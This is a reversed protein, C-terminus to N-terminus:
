PRTSDLGTGRASDPGPGPAAGPASPTLPDAAPAAGAGFSPFGSPPTPPSNGAEDSGFGAAPGPPYGGFPPYGPHSGPYYGGQPPGYQGFQGVQPRPAPASLVGIEFLLATVAAAAQLVTFLLVLWLAWGVSFGNPRNVIQGIALLVGLVAVVAVIPTHRTTKPLLGVAALLSAVLAAVTWYSQGSATFQAGGFPGIDANIRLLPGFSALYAALGLAVVAATLSGPLRSPGAPRGYPPPYGGPQQPLPYGQNSPPYSMAEGQRFM